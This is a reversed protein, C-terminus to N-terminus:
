SRKVATKVHSAGKSSLRGKPLDWKGRKFILLIHFNDNYVLGGASEIMPLGITKILSLNDPM